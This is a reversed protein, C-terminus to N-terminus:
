LTVTALALRFAKNDGNYLHINALAKQYMNSAEEESNYYGLFISKKDINISTKWNQYQKHWNVGVYKSTKNKKNFSVNYRHSTLQLNSLNNDLKNENKHHVVTKYGDPQHCLFAMAVIQHIGFDKVVGNNSLSVVYYGPKNIWPKLIGRKLSKVNGWNSVQYLGEYGVIDKWIEKMACIYLM